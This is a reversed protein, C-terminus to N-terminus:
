GGAGEGGADEGLRSLEREIMEVGWGDLQHTYARRFEDEDKIGLMRKSPALMELYGALAYQLRFRPPWRTIRIPALNSDIIAAQNQYRSTYIPIMRRAM